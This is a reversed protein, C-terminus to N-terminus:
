KVKFFVTVLLLIVAFISWLASLWLTDINMATIYNFICLTGWTTKDM